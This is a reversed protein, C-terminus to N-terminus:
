ARNQGRVAAKPQFAACLSRLDNHSPTLFKNAFAQMAAPAGDFCNGLMPIKRLPSKVPGIKQWYTLQRNPMFQSKSDREAGTGLHSPGTAGETQNPLTKPGHGGAVGGTKGL